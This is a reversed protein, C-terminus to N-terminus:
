EEKEINLTLYVSGSGGFSIEDLTPNGAYGAQAILGRVAPWQEATVALSVHASGDDSIAMEAECGTEALAEILQVATKEPDGATWNLTVVGEGKVAQNMAEASFPEAFMPVDYDVDLLAEDGAPEEAAAEDVPEDEFAAEDVPEDEFAAEDAPIDEENDLVPVSEM